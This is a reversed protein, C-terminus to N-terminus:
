LQHLFDYAPPVEGIESEQGSVLREYRANRDYVTDRQRLSPMGSNVPSTEAMSVSSDSSQSSTMPELTVSRPLTTTKFAEARRIECPCKSLANTVDDFTESYRPLSTWEPNCRCSLIHVPAQIVIDFQKRHGTKLDVQFDDGREVRIICKLLHTIILNSNRNKNTIHMMSCDTPLHLDQHFTWPGPGMLSSAVESMDDDPSVLTYLPSRKLADPDDSVLPLIPGADKGYERVSLLEIYRV